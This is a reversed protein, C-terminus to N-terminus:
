SIRRRRLYLVRHWVAYLLFRVGLGILFAIASSIVIALGLSEGAGGDHLPDRSLYMYNGMLIAFPLWFALASGVLARGNPMCAPILVPAVMLVVPASHRVSYWTALALLVATAFFGIGAHRM